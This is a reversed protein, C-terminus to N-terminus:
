YYTKCPGCPPGGRFIRDVLFTLDLINSTTGDGNCDGEEPCLAPRGGRFIRDVMFTLDLINSNTGDYNLDGRGGLCCTELQARIEGAPFPTSHVNLYLEHQFFDLVDGGSLYWIGKMPSTASTLPFVIPGDVCAPAMHIHSGVPSVVNHTADVTMQQGCPKLTILASGKASSGTGVCLQEQSEDLVSSFQIAQDLIQGRIEGSPFAASHINVYLAGALLSDVDAVSSIDWTEIIPSVSSSFPFVVGGEINPRGYHIHGSIPSLLNHEVHIELTKQDASLKFIGFGLFASGTGAGGNAQRGDLLAVWILSDRVVQGRIEGGSHLMSHINAYLQGNLLNKVSTTDIAWVEDVPSLPDAFPFVIGGDMGPPAMHIHGGVVNRVDHEIHVSLETGDASLEVEACGSALSATAPVEQAEDLEFLFRIPEPIIQGRIEGGPFTGSHVNVYLLGAYLDSVDAPTVAFGQSIPSVPSAFPFVPAGDTCIAAKHIHAATPASVDHAVYLSLNTSDPSLIAFGYGKATSGTGACLAEESEDLLFPFYTPQSPPPVNMSITGFMSFSHVACHYPFPGPGDALVFQLNFGGAGLVGSDWSKPSSLDSTTTHLGISLVWRVTDGPDVTVSPPSFSFNGVTVIHITANASQLSLLLLLLVACLLLKKM